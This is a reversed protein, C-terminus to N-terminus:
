LRVNTGEQFYFPYVINSRTNTARIAYHVQIQLLGDYAQDADVSVRDLQIRPEFFLIAREVTERIDSIMRENVSDFLLAHLGCGYNPQMVREGPRTALLIKLSEAIDEEESAIRVAKSLPDFELPFGWGKGLFSKDLM